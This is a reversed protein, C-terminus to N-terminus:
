NMRAMIMEVIGWIMMGVTLVFFITRETRRSFSTVGKEHCFSKGTQEELERFM